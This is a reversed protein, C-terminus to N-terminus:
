IQNVVAVAVFGFLVGTIKETNGHLLLRVDGGVAGGVCACITRPFACVAIRGRKM